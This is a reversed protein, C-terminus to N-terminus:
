YNFRFGLLGQWNQSTTTTDDDLWLDRDSTLFAIEAYLHFSECLKYLLGTGLKLLIGHNAVSANGSTDNWIYGIGAVGYPVLRESLPYHEEISFLLSNAQKDDYNYHAFSVIFQDLPYIESAYAVEFAKWEDGDVGGDADLSWAFRVNQNTPDHDELLPQAHALSSLLILLLAPIRIRNM